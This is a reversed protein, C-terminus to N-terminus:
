VRLQLGRGPEVSPEWSRRLLEHMGSMFGKEGWPSGRSSRGECGRFVPPPSPSRGYGTGHFRPEENSCRDCIIIIHKGRGAAPRILGIPVGIGRDAPRYAEGCGRAHRASIEDAGQGDKDTAAAAAATM